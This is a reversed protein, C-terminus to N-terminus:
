KTTSKEQPFYRLFLFAVMAPLFTHTLGTLTRVIHYMSKSLGFLYGVVYLIGAIAFLGMYIYSIVNVKQGKEIFYLKLVAYSVLWFFLFFIITLFWKLTMIQPISWQELFHFSDPSVNPFGKTLHYLVHNVNLMFFDRIFGAALLVVFAFSFLIKRSIKSM